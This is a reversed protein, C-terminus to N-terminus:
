QRFPLDRNEYIVQFASAAAAAGMPTGILYIWFDDYDFIGAISAALAAALNFAGGSIGSLAWAAGAVMFGVALGFHSNGESGRTATVNLYVYTLAFAGLFEAILSCIGNSNLHKAIATEEGCNMFLVAFLSALIAGAIQAVVYYLADTRGIKGRLLMALTLAPNFHAGSIHWTAYTMGALTTGVALPALNGDKNATLVFVFTLFLTGIGEALYKKM